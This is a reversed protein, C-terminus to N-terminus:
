QHETAESFEQPKTPTKNRKVDLRSTVSRGGLAEQKEFPFMQGLGKEKVGEFALVSDGCGLDTRLTSGKGQPSCGQGPVRLGQQVRGRM